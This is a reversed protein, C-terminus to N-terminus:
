QYPESKMQVIEFYGTGNWEPWQKLNRLDKAKLFGVQLKISGGLSLDFQIDQIPRLLSGLGLIYNDSGDRRRRQSFAFGYVRNTKALSQIPNTLSSATDNTLWRHPWHKPDFTPSGTATIRLHDGTFFEVHVKRTIKM